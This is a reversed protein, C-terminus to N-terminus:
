RVIVKKVTNKIRVAYVGAPLKITNETGRYVLTGDLRYVFTTAAGDTATVTIGEETGIIAANTSQVSEIASPEMEIINNFNGWGPAIWYDSYTGKPVYLICSGTPVNYFVGGNLGEVTEPPTQSLCTISLLHECSEFASGDIKKLSQPLTIEYLNDCCSFARSGITAVGDPVTYTKSKQNPYFLLTSVTKDFLVGDVASFNNNSESVAFEKLYGCTRISHEYSNQSNVFAEDSFTMLKDGIAIRELDYAGYFAQNKIHLLSNPLILNRVECNSFNGSCITNNETYTSTGYNGSALITAESLDLTELNDMNRIEYLDAGNFYGSITLSKIQDYRSKEIKSELTGAEDLHVEVEQANLTFLGCSLVAVCTMKKSIDM